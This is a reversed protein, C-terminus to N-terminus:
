NFTVSAINMDIGQSKLWKRAKRVVLLWQSEKDVHKEALWLIIVITAWVTADLDGQEGTFNILNLAEKSWSGDTNQQTIVEMEMSKQKSVGTSRSSESEIIRKNQMVPADAM